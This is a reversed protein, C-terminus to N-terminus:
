GFRIRCHSFIIRVNYSVFAVVNLRLNRLLCIVVNEKLSLKRSGLVFQMPKGKSNSVGNVFLETQDVPKILKHQPQHQSDTTITLIPQPSSTFIPFLSSQKSLSTFDLTSHKILSKSQDSLATQQQNLSRPASLASSQIGDLLSHIPTLVQGVLPQLNMITTNSEIDHHQNSVSTSHRKSRSTSKSKASSSTSLNQSTSDTSEADLDKYYEGLRHSNTSSTSFL